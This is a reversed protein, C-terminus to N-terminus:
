LGGEDTPAVETAAHKGQILILPEQGDRWKVVLEPTSASPWIDRAGYGFAFAQRMLETAAERRITAAGVLAAPPGDDPFGQNRTVYDGGARTEPPRTRDGNFTVRRAAAALERDTPPADADAAAKTLEPPAPLETLATVGDKGASVSKVKKVFVAIAKRQTWVLLAVVAPWAISHVIDAIFELGSM